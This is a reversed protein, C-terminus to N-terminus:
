CDFCFVIRDVGAQELAALELFYTTDLYERWTMGNSDAEPPDGQYTVVADYDFAVLEAISLWSFSHVMVGRFLQRCIVGLVGNSVDRPLGRPKAFPVVEDTNCVDALFAFHIDNRDGLADATDVQEFSGDDRQREGLVLIDIGM